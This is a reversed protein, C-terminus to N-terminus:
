LFIRMHAFKNQKKRFIPWILCPLLTNIGWLLVGALAANVTGFVEMAWVGRVGAEAIPVNPTVTVLLYYVATRALNGVTELVGTSGSVGTTGIVGTDGLGDLAYLVLYLQVCWCALRVISQGLSVCLVNITRRRDVSPLVVTMRSTKVAVLWGALALVVTGGLVCGVLWWYGSGFYNLDGLGGTYGLVGIGAIGALVIAATMTASGVAGMALVRSWIGERKAEEGKAMILARAPYEGLRWPTILGALKSYYVQLHAERFTMVDTEQQGDKAQPAGNMLTVWRWAEIAMNVPMLAVCFVLALYHPLRMACLSAWLGAYNDYTALRWVLYGCAALAVMWEIIHYIRNKGM